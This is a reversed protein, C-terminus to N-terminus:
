KHAEIFGIVADAFKGPETDHSHHISADFLILEKDQSGLARDLSFHRSPPRLNKRLDLDRCAPFNPPGLSANKLASIRFFIYRDGKM